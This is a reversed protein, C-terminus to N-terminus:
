CFVRPKLRSTENELKNRGSYIYILGIRFSFMTLANLENYSLLKKRGKSPVSLLACVKLYIFDNGFLMLLKTANTATSLYFPIISEGNTPMRHSAAALFLGMKGRTERNIYM